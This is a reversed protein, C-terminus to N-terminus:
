SVLSSWSHASDNRIVTSVDSDNRIITTDQTIDSDNRGAMNDMSGGVNPSATTQAGALDAIDVITTDMSDTSSHSNLNPEQVNQVSSSQEEDFNAAKPPKVPTVPPTPPASIIMRATSNQLAEVDRHLASSETILTTTLEIHESSMGRERAADFKREFDNLKSIKNDYTAQDAKNNRFLVPSSVTRTHIFNQSFREDSM